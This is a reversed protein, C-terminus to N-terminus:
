EEVGILKWDIDKEMKALWWGFILALVLSYPFTAEIFFWIPDFSLVMIWFAYNIFYGLNKRYIQM